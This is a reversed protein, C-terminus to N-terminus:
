EVPEFLNPGFVLGSAPGLRLGRYRPGLIAALEDRFASGEDARRAARDAEEVLFVEALVANRLARLNEQKATLSM